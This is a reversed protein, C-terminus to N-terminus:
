SCAGAAGTVKNAAGFIMISKNIDLFGGAGDIIHDFLPGDVGRRSYRLM